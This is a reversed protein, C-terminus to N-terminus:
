SHSIEALIEAPPDSRGHKTAGRIPAEVEVTAVVIRSTSWLTHLEAKGRRTRCVAVAIRAAARAIDQAINEPEALTSCHVM